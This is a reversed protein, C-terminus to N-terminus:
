LAKAGGLATKITAELLEPDVRLQGGRTAGCRLYWYDLGLADALAYFCGNGRHRENFLEIVTARRCAVMNALASGHPAAIVDAAAFIELQEAFSHQEPQILEFGLGDLVPLLAAENAVGRRPAGARSVWLRRHGSPREPALRERLWSAAWNPPYGPRGVFSPLVLEDLQLHSVDFAVLRERPIGIMALSDLQSRTLGAPVIIPTDAEEDLRLLSARPLTDCLWHYHNESWQNLLAIHRGVRRQGRHLRKRAPPKARVHEYASEALFRRDDTLVLRASTDVLRGGPITAVFAEPSDYVRLEEFLDDRPPGVTKPASRRHSHAPM